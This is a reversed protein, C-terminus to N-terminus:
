ALQLKLGEIQDKLKQVESAKVTIQDQMMTIVQKYESEMEERPVHTMTKNLVRAAPTQKTEKKASFFQSLMGKVTAGRPTSLGSSEDPM